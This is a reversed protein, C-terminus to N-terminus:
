HSSNLRTSKRDVLVIFLLRFNNIWAGVGDIRAIYEFQSVHTVLMLSLLLFSVVFTLVPEALGGIAGWLAADTTIDGFTRGTLGLVRLTSACSFFSDTYAECRRTSRM